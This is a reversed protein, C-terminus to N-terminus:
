VCAIVRKKWVLAKYSDMPNGKLGAPRYFLKMRTKIALQLTNASEEAPAPPIAKVNVYYVSERDEPLNGGARVIRLM